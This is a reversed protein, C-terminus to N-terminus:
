FVKKDHTKKSVVRIWWSKQTEQSGEKSLRTIVVREAGWASMPNFVKLYQRIDKKTLLVAKTEADPNLRNQVNLGKEKTIKHTSLQEGM